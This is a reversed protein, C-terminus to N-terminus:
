SSVTIIEALVTFLVYVNALFHHLFKLFNRAVFLTTKLLGISSNQAMFFFTPAEESGDYKGHAFFDVGFGDHM